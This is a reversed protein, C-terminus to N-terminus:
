VKHQSDAGVRGDAGNQGPKGDGGSTLITMNGVVTDAFIEVLLLLSFIIQCLCYEDNATPKLVIGIM